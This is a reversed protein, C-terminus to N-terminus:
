LHLVWTHAFERIMVFGNFALKYFLALPSSCFTLVYHQPLSAHTFLSLYFPLLQPLPDLESEWLPMEATQFEGRITVSGDSFWQVM